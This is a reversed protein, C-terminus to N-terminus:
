ELTKLYNIIYTDFDPLSTDEYINVFQKFQMYGYTYPNQITQEYNETFYTEITKGEPVPNPLKSQITNAFKYCMELEKQYGHKRWWLMAITNALYEAKYSLELNGDVIGQLAHGLEHPLYFGNFFLGFMKEGESDSGTIDTFFEKLEPLVQEWLPLHINNDFGYYILAPSTDLIVKLEFQIDPKINKIDAIFAESISNADRIFATSDTYTQFWQNQAFGFGSSILFILNIIIHKM